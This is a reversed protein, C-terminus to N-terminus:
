RNDPPLTKRPRHRYRWLLSFMMLLIAALVVIIPTYPASGFESAPVLDQSQGSAGSRRLGAAVLLIMGAAITFLALGLAVVVALSNPSRRLLNRESM